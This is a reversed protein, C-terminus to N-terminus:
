DAQPEGADEVSEPMREVPPDDDTPLMEAVARVDNVLELFADRTEPYQPLWNVIAGIVGMAVLAKAKKTKAGKIVEQAVSALHRAGPVPLSAIESLGVTTQALVVEPPLDPQMVAEQLRRVIVGVAEFAEVSWQPMDQAVVVGSRVSLTGEALKMPRGCLDCFTTNNGLSLATVDGEILIANTERVGHVPCVAPVRM